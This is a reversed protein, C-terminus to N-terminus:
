KKTTRGVTKKRSGATTKKPTKKDTRDTAKKRSRGTPESNAILARVEDEGMKEADTGKPIKYNGGDYKIYPGFRGNLVEVMEAGEGFTKIVKKAEAEEKAKALAVAEELTVTFPSSDKPISVFKNSGYRVYPGFRGNNAQYTVGDKEGLDRPLIFLKLAEELTITELSMEKPISSFRPKPGDDTVEGIQIMPGFRGIKAFVPEGSKPDKGLKREGVKRTTKTANVEEVHEHFLAYFAGIMERWETHGEAIDDFKKEVEATFNYDLVKPFAETLFQTVIIGTDTPVLKGSDKGVFTSKRTEKIRDNKDLTLVVYPTEKGESSRKEVYERRQITQITPAYTSPRGIGLEEMKKVLSAETYRAPLQSFRETATAGILTPTDGKQLKPLLNSESATGAEREVDEDDEDSVTNKKKDASYAKLFGDFLLVEGKASFPVGNKEGELSVLTREVEAESMQSAMARTRILRYLNKEKASTGAVSIGFHTPRIAEHAEQAGKSTTHYNRLSLYNKGFDKTVVAEIDEKAEDSLNVSDTRMYTIHGEEYLKQALRMTESVSYGLKRSAEQQLTSTTFPPAPRLAGPKVTVSVVRLTDGKLKELLAKAAEADKPRASEPVEAAFEADGAKLKATVRFDSKVEFDQREREREVVLRVAVSQVRGASLNPRIKKWLIPSLEFGVIRDLVRRAQQADVLNLDIARPSKLANKIARETIEHFVIRNKEKEDLGLTEALHWAIAEGERDEDSALWVRSAGKAAKQLDTVLKEKDETVEYQPVFGGEIDIGMGSTKLDRIHGYSSKVVYDSGLFKGITKSKAPSEVILLQKPM